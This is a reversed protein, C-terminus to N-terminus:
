CRSPHPGKRCRVGGTRKAEGIPWGGRQLPSPDAGLSIHAHRLAGQPATEAVILDSLSLVVSGPWRGDRTALRAGATVALAPRGPSARSLAMRWFTRSLTAAKFDAVGM